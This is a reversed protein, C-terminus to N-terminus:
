DPLQDRLADLVSWRPDVSGSPCSCAGENLDKGCIACLGACNVKCLPGDPLELVMTERIMLALDVQDNEILFADPDTITVQYMEHVDAEIRGILPQLCRRCEGHFKGMVHGRVVIGDTLSECVLDVDITSDPVLRPDSLEIVAPDVPFQVTKITGPRRLMELANIRLQSRKVTSM